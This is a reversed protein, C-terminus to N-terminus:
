ARHAEELSKVVQEDVIRRDHGVAEVGPTLMTCDLLVQSRTVGAYYIQELVDGQYQEVM